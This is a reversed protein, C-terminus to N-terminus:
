KSAERVGPDPDPIYLAPARGADIDIVVRQQSRLAHGTGSLSIRLDQRQDMVLPGTDLIHIHHEWKRTLAQSMLHGYLGIHERRYPTSAESATWNM